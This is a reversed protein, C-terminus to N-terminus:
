LVCCEEGNRVELGLEKALAIAAPTPQVIKNVGCRLALEDLKLRYKGKPRMCGLHIPIDAFEERAKCLIRVVDAMAPPQKDAYDTGDTPAFVIFVLGEAGLQKLMELAKYEGSIQGGRLGICIHPLVRVKQRLGLYVRIYDEVTKDLGYVEQITQNDGVFDFSVVDAVQSLPEIEDDDLLGVHLNTRRRSQRIEKILPLYRILPVKGNLECGGSILCSTINRNLGTRWDTIPVMANLYHGNCHACQLHCQSGTVSIAKTSVPFDFEVVNPFNAQRVEWAKAILQEM